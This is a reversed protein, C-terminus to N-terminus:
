PQVERSLEEVTLGKLALRHRVEFLPPRRLRAAVLLDDDALLEGPSCDALLQGAALVLVRNAFRAVARLDHTTFLLCDIEGAPALCQGVSELVRQVQPQDQGTTPEDLLLLRPALTLTAAVATRLRQGQSLAQPPEELLDALAFRDAASQSRDRVVDSPCAMQRPAFALEDRVTACFLMLDPNQLVIGLQPSKRGTGTRGPAKPEVDSWAISGSNATLLGALIALLTSKGSGNAGVLAVRDGRNLDFSLEQFVPWAAAPFSFSLSDVRITRSAGESPEIEHQLSIRPPTQETRRRAADRSSRNFEGVVQGSLSAALDDATLFPPRDLALSLQTVEPLQL